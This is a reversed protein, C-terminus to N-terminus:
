FFDMAKLGKFDAGTHWTYQVSRNDDKTAKLNVCPPRQLAQGLDYIMQPSNQFSKIDM